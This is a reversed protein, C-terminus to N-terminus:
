AYDALIHVIHIHTRTHTYIPAGYATLEHGLGSGVKHGGDDM